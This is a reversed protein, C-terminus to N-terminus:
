LVYNVPFYSSPVASNLCETGWSLLSEVAISIERVERKTTAWLDPRWEYKTCLSWCDDICSDTLKEEQDWISNGVHASSRRQLEGGGGERKKESQVRRIAETEADGGKAWTPAYNNSHRRMATWNDMDIGVGVDNLIHMDTHTNIYIHTALLQVKFGIIKQSYLEAEQM